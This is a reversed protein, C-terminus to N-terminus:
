VGTFNDFNVVTGGIVAPGNDPTPKKPKRSDTIRKRASVVRPIYIMGAVAALNTWAVIKPDVVMPYHRQVEAIAKAMQESERPDLMLEPAQM